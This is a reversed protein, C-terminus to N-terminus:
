DVLQLSGAKSWPGVVNCGDRKNIARVLFEYAHEDSLPLDSNHIGFLQDSKDSRTFSRYICNQEEQQASFAIPHVVIEYDTAGDVHDLSLSFAPWQQIPAEFSFVHSYLIDCPDDPDPVGVREVGVAGQLFQPSLEVEPLEDPCQVPEPDDDNDRPDLGPPLRLIGLELETLAEAHASDGNYPLVYVHDYSIESVGSPGSLGTYAFCTEENSGDLYVDGEFEEGATGTYVAVRTALPFDQRICLEVEIPHADTNRDSALDLRYPYSVSPLQGDETAVDYGPDLDWGAAETYIGPGKLTVWWRGSPAGQADGELYHLAPMHEPVMRFSAQLQLNPRKFAARRERM